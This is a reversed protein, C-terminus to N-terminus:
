SDDKEKEQCIPCTFGKIWVVDWFPQPQTLLASTYVCVVFRNCLIRIKKFRNRYSCSFFLRPPAQM